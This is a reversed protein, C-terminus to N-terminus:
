RIFANIFPLIDNDVSSDTSGYPQHNDLTVFYWDETHEISKGPQIKTLPGLTETELLFENVYVENNSGFDPYIADPQVAFRKIMIIDQLQCASWGQKNLIGIKQESPITPDHKLQIYKNGWTWRKDSMQTYNWLVVPRAPLLNEGPDIYPEQPLIARSGAAHATIAWASTEIPWLNNNILRHIINVHDNGSDLAIDMEKIIGTTSEIIQKLRLTNGDYTFTLPSNDAFYTRPMAEPSHWLRHGGYIRWDNGGTRGKEAESVYLLNQRNVYGCRIIRPGVDTTIILEIKSNSLRICNPWGEFNVMEM